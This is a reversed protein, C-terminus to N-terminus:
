HGGLSAILLAFFSGFYALIFLIHLGSLVTGIIACIKGAKLNNFSGITYMEPDLFYTETSKKQIVLAVIGFILGFLGFVFCGIVISLIGFVLVLTSNPLERQMVYYDDEEEYTKISRNEM